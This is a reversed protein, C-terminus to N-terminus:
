RDLVAAYIMNEDLPDLKGAGLEDRIMPESPPHRTPESPGRVSAATLRDIEIALLEPDLNSREARCERRPLDQITLQGDSGQFDRNHDDHGRCICGVLGIM